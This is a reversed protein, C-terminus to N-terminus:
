STTDKTSEAAEQIESTRPAYLHCRVTHGPEVEIVEPAVKDCVGPMYQPCRPHFSCGRLVSYPDPVMGRITELRKKKGARAMVDDLQPISRLLARTYPHLPTLFISRVDTQEVVKGMYMVAVEDAMEAIVGLNHTIYMIAMNFDRQLNRMLDLIQAETTVDLATTPEDAILLNPNCSLAMAIVARQRMGGSLQFPYTDVIRDPNPLNVRALIEIARERAEEKEVGQHLIIAEMIQSGVTRVPLMATMPEQFVMSIQNGRIARMERSNSQLKTINIVDATATLETEQVTKYYIIEGEEIQGPSPVLQMLSLATISKGCGSEGVVGLTRGPKIVLDVGDVARVIGEALHFYTRLNKVEVLANDSLM